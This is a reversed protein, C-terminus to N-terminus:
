TKLIAKNTYPEVFLMERYISNRTDKARVHTRGNITLYGFSIRYTRLAPKSKIYNHRYCRIWKRKKM